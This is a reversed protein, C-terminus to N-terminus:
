AKDMEGKEVLKKKETEIEQLSSAVRCAVNPEEEKRDRTIRNVRINLGTDLNPHFRM